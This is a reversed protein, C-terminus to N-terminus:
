AMFSGSVGAAPGAVAGSEKLAAIQEASYGAAELVEDTHEGLSPGPAEVRGPTRSMKVPVGLQKVPREAGPQDLEVVMERAKVLESDLAEDLDLVPELCCDHESAFQRWQDRTRELFIREVEAHTESGPREFQHQILDDRDVGRCWAEWFKPELAGLTVYGDKCAYPRYCLIAGALENDGRKPVKGDAFYRGAAMAMWALSGDTMSVDVLQGEGSSRREHLAALVGFAAMLAGGGLDAIQGASQVPPGGAEGTLGLLGNLGLYNMDHGSRDRNPGDQGYGTIACYVLGPNEQRLREYGVGLRDLVGPRFSEVLVDYDRALRLLVDRGGEEKLNIRISRKGRNLALYLGSKASDEVGEHFPPAWRVYDGMGTDEVKLVEAGFDALMLSCFGGPLLRTLDLVRVDSLPRESM